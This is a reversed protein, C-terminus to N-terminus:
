ILKALFAFLCLTGTDTGASPSAPRAAGVPCSDSGCYSALTSADGISCLTTDVPSAADCTDTTAQSENECCSLSTDRLSIDDNQNALKHCGYDELCSGVIDGFANNRALDECVHEGRCSGIIDGVGSEEKPILGNSVPGVEHPMAMALYRCSATGVCSDYVDGVIGERAMGYCSATGICSRVINRSPNAIGKDIYVCSGHGTDHCSDVIDGMPGSGHTDAWCGKYGYPSAGTTSDPNTCSNFVNGVESNVSGLAYCVQWGGGCSHVMDKVKGGKWGVLECQRTYMDREPVTDIPALTLHDTAAADPNTNCSNLVNGVSGGEGALKFCAKERSRCSNHIRPVANATKPHAVSDCAFRGQCGNIIEGVNAKFCANFGESCSGDRCVRGTFLLCANVDGDGSDNRCCDYGGAGNACADHCTTDSTPEGNADCEGEFGNCCTVFGADCTAFYPSPDWM